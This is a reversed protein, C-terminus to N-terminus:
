ALPIGDPRARIPECNRDRLKERARGGPQGARGRPEAAISPLGAEEAWFSPMESGEASYPGGFLPRVPPASFPQVRRGADALAGGRIPVRSVPHGKPLGTAHV